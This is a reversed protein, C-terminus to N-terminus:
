NDLAGQAIWRRVTEYEVSGVSWLEGGTHSVPSGCDSLSPKSLIKSHCPLGTDIRGNQQLSAYVTPADATLDLGSIHGPEHCGTCGSAAFEPYVQNVFSVLPIGTTQGCVPASFDSAGAPNVAQIRYCYQTGQLLGEDSYSTTGAPLTDDRVPTFDTSGALAHELKFSSENDSQDMWSLSIATDAVGTVELQDPAAPAGLPVPDDPDCGLAFLLVVPAIWLTILKIRRTV